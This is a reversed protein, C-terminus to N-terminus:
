AEGNISIFRGTIEDRVSACYRHDQLNVPGAQTARREGRVLRSIHQHRVGFRDALQQQTVGGSAYALRVRAVEHDSLKAAPNIQGRQDKLGTRYAHLTNQSPTVCELNEPRNDDKVGNLHNIVYCRPIPGKFYWWVLRHAGVHYRRGRVMLRVQIYGLTTRNGAPRDGDPHIRWIRGESDIRFQAAEVRRLIVEEPRLVLQGAARLSTPEQPM